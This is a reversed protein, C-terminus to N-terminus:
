TEICVEQSASTATCHFHAPCRDHPACSRSCYQAAGNTVCIGTACDAATKCAKGVDSKPKGVTGGDSHKRKRKGADSADVGGDDDGSGDAALSKALAQEILASFADTRTYVNHAGAGDCTPGGRSVVGVIEGTGEDLAPGGSDGQCTAEGVEFEAPSTSLVAVHERLLKTGPPDGDARRGFGIATVHDGAAVAVSSVLFSDVDVPQDLLVLAIDGDCISTSTPVLVERGRAVEAATAVDDGLLVRLSSPAREGTIQSGTPPCTITEATISVCHRATLVVDPAILTGTCLAGEGIDLAVVAPDRGADAVGTVIETQDVQLTGGSSAGQAPDRSACAGGSASVVLSLASLASLSLGRALKSSSM